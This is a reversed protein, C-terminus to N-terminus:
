GTKDNTEQNISARNLIKEAEWAEKSFVEDGRIIINGTDELSKFLERIYREGAGFNVVMEAILKRKSATKGAKDCGKVHAM